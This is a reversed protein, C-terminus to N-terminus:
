LVSQLLAALNCRAAPHSVQDLAARSAAPDDMALGVRRLAELESASANGLMAAGEAAAACLLAHNSVPLAHPAHLQQRVGNESLRQLTQAFLTVIAPSEADAAFAAARAYLHDGMLVLAGASGNLAARRALTEHVQGAVYLTELAAALALRYTPKVGLARGVALAVQARVRDQTAALADHLPGVLPTFPVEALGRLMSELQMVEAVESDSAVQSKSVPAPLAERWTPPRVLWVAATTM